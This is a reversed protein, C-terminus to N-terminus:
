GLLEKALSSALRGDFRGKYEKNLGGMVKGLADAGNSILNKIEEKLEEETLPKGLYTQIIEIEKINESILDERGAKKSADLADKRKKLEKQLVSIISEDSAEKKSDIEFKKVEALIGRLTLLRKKDKSKMAEKMDNQIKTKM